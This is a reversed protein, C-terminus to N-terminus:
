KMLVMKKTEVFDGAQIRYFYIGSTLDSANFEVEYNGTPQNKNVLTSIERGLIDLVKLSVYSQDSISYSIKTSPNFPNPYNQELSFNVPLSSLREEISTISRIYEKTIREFISWGSGDWNQEFLYEINNRHEDFTSTWRTNNRWNSDELLYGLISVNQNNEDFTLVQKYYDDWSSGNWMKNHIEINNGSEDYAYIFMEGNVWTGNDDYLYTEEILLGNENYKYETKSSNVWQNGNAWAFVIEILNNNDDYTNTQRWSSEWVNTYKYYGIIELVRGNSNYTTTQKYWEKWSSNEWMENLLEIERNHGDYTITGRGQTVWDSSEWMSRIVQTNNGNGDYSYESREKSPDGWPPTIERIEESLVFASNTKNLISGNDIMYPYKKGNREIFGHLLRQGQAESLNKKHLIDLKGNILKDNANLSVSILLLLSIHFLKIIRGM